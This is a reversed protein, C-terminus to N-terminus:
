DRSKGEMYRALGSRFLAALEDVDEDLVIGGEGDTARLRKSATVSGIDAAPIGNLLSRVDDFRWPAIELLYRSPTESFLIADTEM